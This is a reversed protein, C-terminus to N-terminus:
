HNEESLERRLHDATLGLVAQEMLNEDSYEVHRDFYQFSLLGNM